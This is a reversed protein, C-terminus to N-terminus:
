RATKGSRSQSAGAPSGELERGRRADDEAGPPDALQRRDYGPAARQQHCAAASRRDRDVRDVVDADVALRRDLVRLPAAERAGVDLDDDGDAASRREIEALGGRREDGVAAIRQAVQFHDALPPRELPRRQRADRNRRGGAGSGLHRAVSHQARRRVADLGAQAARVHQRRHRQDIGLQGVVQRRRQGRGGAEVGQRLQDLREDARLGVGEDVRDAAVRDRADIAASGCANAPSRAARASM